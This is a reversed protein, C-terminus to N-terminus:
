APLKTRAAQARRKRWALLGAGGVALLGLSGPEPVEGALVVDGVDGYAYSNITFVNDGATGETTVSVWGYQEGAGANFEFGIYGQGPSKWQSHTFGSGSALLGVPHLAFPLSAFNAGAALKSVYTYAVGNNANTATFGNFKASVGNFIGFKAAGSTYRVRSHSMGFTVSGALPFAQGARSGAPADYTQNVDFDHIM